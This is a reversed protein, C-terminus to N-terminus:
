ELTQSCVNESYYEGALSTGRRVKLVDGLKIKKM